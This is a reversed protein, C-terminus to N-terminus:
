NKICILSNLIAPHDNFMRGELEQYRELYISFTTLAIPGRFVYLVHSGDMRDLVVTQLQEDKGMRIRRIFKGVETAEQEISPKRSYIGGFAATTMSYIDRSSPYLLDPIKERWRQFELYQEKFMKGM